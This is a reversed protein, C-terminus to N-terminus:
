LNHLEVLRSLLLLWLVNMTPSTILRYTVLSNLHPDNLRKREGLSKRQLGINLIQIFIPNSYDSQSTPISQSHRSLNAANTKVSAARHDYAWIM